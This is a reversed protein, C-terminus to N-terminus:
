EEPKMALLLCSIDHLVEVDDQNFIHFHIEVEGQHKKPTLKSVVAEGRLVDGAFVPAVWEIRTFRGAIMTDRWINMRVFEAWVLMFSMVGPAITRQLRTSRAFSEDLHIPLPDYTHAFSVIKDEEILVDGVRFCQGLAFEEFYMVVCRRRLFNEKASLLEKLM